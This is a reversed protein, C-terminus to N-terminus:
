SADRDRRDQENQEERLMAARELAPSLAVQQGNGRRRRLHSLFSSDWDASLYAKAATWEYFDEIEDSLRLGYERAKAEATANPAWDPPRICKRSKPPPKPAPPLDAPDPADHIQKKKQSQKKRKKDNGANSKTVDGNGANRAKSERHKAVRLRTKERIDAVSMRERYLGHNLLFWGGPVEEIRRGGHDKTRSDPDPASLYTLAKRCDEVSVQAARALGPVSAEVVGDINAMAMMTVWVIRISDPAGWITSHIITSFLKTFGAM